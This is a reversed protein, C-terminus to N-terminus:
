RKSRLGTHPTLKIGFGEYITTAIGASFMGGEIKWMNSFFTPLFSSTTKLWVYPKSPVRAAM